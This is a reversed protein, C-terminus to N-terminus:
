IDMWLTCKSTREPQREAAPSKTNQEYTKDDTHQPSQHADEDDSIFNDGPQQTTPQPSSQVANDDPSVSLRISSHTIDEDAEDEGYASMLSAMAQTSDNPVLRGAMTGSGECCFM